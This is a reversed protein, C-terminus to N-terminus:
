RSPRGIFRLMLLERRTSYRELAILPPPLEQRYRLSKRACSVTNETSALRFTGANRGHVMRHVLHWPCLRRGTSIRRRYGMRKAPLHLRLHDESINGFRDVFWIASTNEPGASFQPRTHLSSTPLFRSARTPSRPISFCSEAQYNNIKFHGNPLVEVTDQAGHKETAEVWTKLNGNRAPGIDMEVDAPM